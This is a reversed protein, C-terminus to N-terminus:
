GDLDLLAALTPCISKISFVSTFSKKLIDCSVWVKRSVLQPAVVELFGPGHFERLWGSFLCLHNQMVVSIFLVFAFIWGMSSWIAHSLSIVNFNYIYRLQVSLMVIAKPGLLTLLLKAITMGSWHIQQFKFVPVWKFTSIVSIDPTQLFEFCRCYCLIQESQPM